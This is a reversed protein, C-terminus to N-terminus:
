DAQRGLRLFGIPHRTSGDIALDALIEGVLPGFKFGHGSFGAALVVKAHRPHRDILFHEDPTLTYMCVSHAVVRGTVGVLRRSALEILPGVDAPRLTRDLSEPGAVPDSLLHRAVKVRGADIVPFGYFFEGREHFAYVPCGAALRLNENATELWVQPRREIRLPLGLDHLVARSWPGAAIVLRDAEFSGASTEVRVGSPGAQWARVPTEPRLDAGRRAACELMAHVCDEAYLLGADPEFLIAADAPITLGRFRRAATSHDLEAIPLAHRTAALRTGQIVAGDPDGALLLGCREFLTRGAEAALQDWLPYASHLLPVYDPHEFYAKRCIRTRGHSSGRDNGLAHADLGLVRLRRGALRWAAASGMVGLGLVIADFRSSMPPM